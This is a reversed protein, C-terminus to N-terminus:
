LFMSDPDIKKSIILNEHFKKMNLRTLTTAVKSTTLGIKRNNIMYYFDGCCANCLCGKVTLCMMPSRMEVTQGIYKDYNDDDLKILKSGKKKDVIYRYLFDKKNGKTLKVQITGKTGCDSGKDALMETQLAALLEKALYGSVKTDVAKPYAGNIITNASPGIENKKVGEILSSQIIDYKETAPNFVAGRYLFMNKYNNRINGRAGSTYLNMGYDDGFSQKAKEILANEIQESVRTNGEELEKQYKKLLEQKYKKVEPKVVITQESFSTSVIAHIQYLYWDRLDIWKIMTDVSIKDNLLANAIKGELEKYRDETFEYNTFPIVKDLGSGQILVRYTVLRGVTTELETKTPSELPSLKIKDKVDFIAPLIKNNKDAKYAFNNVFWKFDYEDPKLALIEKKAIDSITKNDKTPDKTLMYLSQVAELDIKRSSGGTINLFYAKSHIVRDCEANAEQTWVVKFTCQDGDYDGDLGELYANSFQCSDIFSRMIKSKPANIDISPYWKYIKGNVVMPVTEITSLVHIKSIFVGFYDLLPYRTVITHKGEAIDACAMYLLDTVTMPRQYIGSKEYDATGDYVYGRFMIKSEVSKGNILIPVPITSFRYSQDSIYRDIMKTIFRDNFYGEPNRVEYEHVINENKDEKRLPVVSKTYKNQIFEKDFFNKLWNVVFPYCLVCMHSIPIGAHQWDIINDQPREAHYNPATIVARTCYDVNKGMLYKRLIGHKKELKGKFYNYVGVINNQITLNTGNFVFDFMDKSAILSVSRIINAYLVNLQNTEGSGNAATNMDRYFAPIVLLKDIFVYDKPTNKLLDLREKRIGTADPDEWKIKDWNEYLYEIGTNEGRDTVLKGDIIDCTVDGSIIKEIKRFMYKLVMYIHPHFFKQKLDIYAFTEKRDKTTIGFIENSILGDPHPVNGKQYLISSKVEKIHNIDVFENMYLLNIKM